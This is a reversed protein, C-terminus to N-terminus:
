IIHYFMNMVVTFTFTKIEYAADIHLITQNM